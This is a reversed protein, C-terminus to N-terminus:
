ESFLLWASVLLLGTHILSFGKGSHLQTEESSNGRKLKPDTILINILNWSVTKEIPPILLVKKWMGKLNGSIKLRSSVKQKRERRLHTLLAEAGRVSEWHICLVKFTARISM